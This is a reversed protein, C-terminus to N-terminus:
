ENRKARWERMKLAAESPTKEGCTPCVTGPEPPEANAFGDTHVTHLELFSEIASKKFLMKDRYQTFHVAELGKNRVLHYVSGRPCRLISCAEDITIYEDLSM